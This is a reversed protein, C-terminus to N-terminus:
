MVDAQNYAIESPGFYLVSRGSEPFVANAQKYLGGKWYMGFDNVWMTPGNVRSRVQVGDVWAEFWGTSDYHFRAGWVVHIWRNMNAMYRTGDGNTLQFIPYTRLNAVTGVPTGGTLQMIAYQPDSQPYWSFGIAPFSNNDPHMDSIDTFANGGTHAWEFKEAGYPLYLRLSFWRIDGYAAGAKNWTYSPTSRVESKDVAPNLPVPWSPDSDRIECRLVKSGGGAPDNVISVRGDPTSSIPPSFYGPNSYSFINTWPATIVGGSYDTYFYSNGPPPAPDYTHETATVESRVTNGVDAAQLTYNQSTANPINVCNAGMADCRQWQYAYTLFDLDFTWDGNDTHVSQGQKFTGSLAPPTTNNVTM